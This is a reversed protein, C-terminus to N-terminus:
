YFRIISQVKSANTLPMKLETQHLLSLGLNTVTPREKFEIKIVCDTIWSLIIKLSSPNIASIVKLYGRTDDLLSQM